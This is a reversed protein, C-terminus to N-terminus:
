ATATAGALAPFRRQLVRLFARVVPTWHASQSWVLKLSRQLPSGTVPLARLVGMEVDDHVVYDPLVSLCTGLAVARKISELADFEAGIRLRIDRQALEGELWIRSQSNRQRVIMTQGALEEIRVTGHDWWPHKRGVVVLQEDNRLWLSNLGSMEFSDLEGEVIGMDLQGRRLDALLEPTTGTRLAVTLRPYDARFEQVSAPLLYIGAGPTAGVAVQGGELNRVDTVAEEAAAVLAFIQRAYTHLTEGAATLEAGRRSRTLLQVGLAGELDQMHQSVAPQTMLLREAAASFSGAQVVADFIELKYLNLM